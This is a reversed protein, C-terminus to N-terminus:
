EISHCSAAQYVAGSAAGLSAYLRSYLSAFQRRYPVLDRSDMVEMFLNAIGAVEGTGGQEVIKVRDGRLGRDCDHPHACVAGLRAGLGICTRDGFGVLRRFRDNELAQARTKGPIATTDSSAAECISVVCTGSVKM